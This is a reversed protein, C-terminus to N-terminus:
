NVYSHIKNVLYLIDETNSSVLFKFAEADPIVINLEKEIEMVCDVADLSDFGLDVVKTNLSVNLTQNNVKEISKKIGAYIYNENM